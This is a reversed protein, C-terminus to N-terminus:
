MNKNDIRIDNNIVERDWDVEEAIKLAKDFDIKMNKDESRTEEELENETTIDFRLWDHDCKEPPEM